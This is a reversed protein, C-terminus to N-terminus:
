RAGVSAFFPFIIANGGHPYGLHKGVKNGDRADEVWDFANRAVSFAKKKRKRSRSSVAAHSSFKRM